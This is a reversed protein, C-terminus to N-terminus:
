LADVVRDEIHGTSVPFSKIIRFSTECYFTKEGSTKATRSSLLPLTTRWTVRSPSPVSEACRRHEVNTGQCKDCRSGEAWLSTPTCRVFPLTEATLTSGFESEDMLATDSAMTRLIGCSRGKSDKSIKLTGPEEAESCIQCSRAVALEEGKKGRM